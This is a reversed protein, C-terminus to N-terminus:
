YASIGIERLVTTNRVYCHKLEGSDRLWLDLGNEKALRLLVSIKKEMLKNITSVFQTWYSVGIQGSSRTIIQQVIWLDIIILLLYTLIYKQGASCKLDELDVRDNNIPEFTVSYNRSFKKFTDAIGHLITEESLCSKQYAHCFNQDHPLRQYLLCRETKGIIEIFLYISTYYKRHQNINNINSDKSNFVEWM